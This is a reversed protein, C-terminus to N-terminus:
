VSFPHDREIFTFYHELIHEHGSFLQTSGFSAVWQTQPEGVRVSGDARCAVADDVGPLHPMLLGLCGVLFALHIITLATHPLRRCSARM